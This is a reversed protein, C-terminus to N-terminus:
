QAEVRIGDLSVYPKVNGRLALSRRLRPRYLLLLRRLRWNRFLLEPRLSLQGGLLLMTSDKERLVEKGHTFRRVPQADASRGDVLQALRTLEGM